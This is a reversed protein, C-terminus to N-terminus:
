SIKAHSADRLMKSSLVVVWIFGALGSIAEPVAVGSVIRVSFLLVWPAAAVVAVLLTFVAMGVQRILWFAGAIVLMSTPMLVFFTVSVLYHAPKVNEPFVGIAILSLCALAFIFSGTRSLVKEGWFLFMGTSFIFIFIGTIMLGYNFLAATVGPVVGLDSLANDMWSFQPYSTVALYIFTFALIPAIIGCTGAIRFWMVKKTKLM